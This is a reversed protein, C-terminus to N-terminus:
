FRRFPDAEPQAVGGGVGSDQSRTLLPNRMDGAGAERLRRRELSSEHYPDLSSERPHSSQSAAVVASSNTKLRRNLYDSRFEGLNNYHENRSDQAKHLLGDITSTTYSIDSPRFM